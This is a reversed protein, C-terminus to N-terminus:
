QVVVSATMGAHFSCHYKYTGAATFKHTYTDGKQLTGSNFSNDDATVTHAAADMNTWTVTVGNSITLTAPSFKFGTISVTNQGGQHNGNGNDNSRDKKCATFLLAIFLGATLLLPQM